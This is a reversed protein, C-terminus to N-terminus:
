IDAWALSVCVCGYAVCAGCCVCVCVCVRMCGVVAGGTAMAPQSKNEEAAGACVLGGVVCSRWRVPGLGLGLVFVLVCVCVRVGADLLAPEPERKEILEKKPVLGLLVCM